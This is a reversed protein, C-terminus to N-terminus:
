PIADVVKEKTQFSTGRFLAILQEHQNVVSVDYTGTKGGLFTEVATATLTDGVQVMQVYHISCQQAVTKKNRSNCAYAFATDALAFTVGGHGIHMGNLMDPRVVMSLRAFGPRVLELLIEFRHALQDHLFMADAVSEAITQESLTDIM